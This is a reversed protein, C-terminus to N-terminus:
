GAERQPAPTKTSGTNRGRGPRAHPDAPADGGLAQVFQEEFRSLEGDAKDQRAEIAELRGNIARVREATVNDHTALAERTARDHDALQQVVQDLLGLATRLARAQEDVKRELREILPETQPEELYSPEIGLIKALEPIRSSRPLATGSDYRQIQRWDVGLANAVDQQTLHARERAARFRRGFEDKALAMDTVSVGPRHRRYSKRVDPM